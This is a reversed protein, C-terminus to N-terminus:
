HQHVLTLATHAPVKLISIITRSHIMLHWSLKQVTQKQMFSNSSTLVQYPHHHLAHSNAYLIPGPLLHHALKNSRARVSQFIDPFVHIKLGFVDLYIPFCRNKTTLIMDIIFLVCVNHIYQPNLAM